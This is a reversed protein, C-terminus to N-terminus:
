KLFFKMCDNFLRNLTPQINFFGSASASKKTFLFPWFIRFFQHFYNINFIFILKWIKWVVQPIEILNEAFIYRIIGHFTVFFLTQNARQFTRKRFFWLPYWISGEEGLVLNQFLWQQCQFYCNLLVKTRWSFNWLFQIEIFTTSSYGQNKYIKFSSSLDIKCLLRYIWSFHKLLSRDDQLFFRLWFYRNRWFM